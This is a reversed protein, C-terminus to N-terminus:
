LTGIKPGLQRHCFFGPFDRCFDTLITPTNKMYRCAGQLAEVTKFHEFCKTVSVIIVHEICCGYLSNHYDHCMRSHMGSWGYGEKIEPLKYIFLVNRLTLM